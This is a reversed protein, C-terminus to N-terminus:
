KKKFCLFIRASVPLLKSVSRKAEYLNERQKLASVWQRPCQKPFLITVCM